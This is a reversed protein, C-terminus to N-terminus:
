HLIRQIYYVASPPLIKFVTWPSRMNIKPLSESYPILKTAFKINSALCINSTERLVLKSSFLAANSHTVIRFRARANNAAIKHIVKQCLM